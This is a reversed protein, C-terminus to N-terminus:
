PADLRLLEEAATPATSTPGPALRRSALPAIGAFLPRASALLPSRPADGRARVIVRGPVIVAGELIEGSSRADAPASDPPPRHRPEDTSCSALLMTLAASITAAVRARM